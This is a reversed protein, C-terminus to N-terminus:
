LGGTRIIKPMHMFHVSSISMLRAHLNGMRYQAISLFIIRYKEKEFMFISLEYGVCAHVLIVIGHESCYMLYLV